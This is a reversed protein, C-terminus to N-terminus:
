QQVCYIPEAWSCYSLAQGGAAGEFWWIDTGAVEYDVRGLTPHSPTVPDNSGDYTWGFCNYDAVLPPSTPTAGTWVMIGAQYGDETYGINRSVYEPEVFNGGTATGLSINQTNKYEVGATTANNGNLMAKWGSTINKTVNGNAAVANCKADAGSFGGLNGNYSQSTVFIYKSTASGGYPSYSVYVSTSQKASGANYTIVLTTYSSSEGSGQITVQCTANQNLSGCGNNSVIFPVGDPFTPTINTAAGDIPNNNRITLTTSSENQASTAVLQVSSPTVSLSAGNTGAIANAIDGVCGSVLVGGGLTIGILFKRKM